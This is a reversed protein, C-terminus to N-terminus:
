PGRLRGRPPPKVAGHRRAMETLRDSFYGNAFVALKAGAVGLDAPPLDLLSIPLPEDQLERAILMPLVVADKNGPAAAESAEKAAPAPPAAAEAPAPAAPANEAHAPPIGIELARVAVLALALGCLAILFKGALPRRPAVKSGAM